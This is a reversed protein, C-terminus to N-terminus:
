TSARENVGTFEYLVYTGIWNTCICGTFINGLYTYAFTYLYANAQVNLTKIKIIQLIDVHIILSIKKSSLLKVILGLLKRRTQWDM